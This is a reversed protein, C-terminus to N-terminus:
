LFSYMSISFALLGGKLGDFNKWPFAYAELPVYANADPVQNTYVGSPPMYLM